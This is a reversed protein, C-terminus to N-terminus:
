LGLENKCVIIVNHVNRDGNNINAHVFLPNKKGSNESESAPSLVAPCSVDTLTRLLSYASVISVAVVECM